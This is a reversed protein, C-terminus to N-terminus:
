SHPPIVNRSGMNATNFQNQEAKQLGLNTSSAVFPHVPPPSPKPPPNDHHGTEPNCGSGIFGGRFSTCSHNNGM